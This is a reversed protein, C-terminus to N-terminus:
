AAADAVRLPLGGNVASLEDFDCRAVALVRVDTAAQVRATRIGDASFLSREGVVAGAGLRRHGDRAEVLVSGELVVFLGAGPQGSEILLQGAPVACEAGVTRLLRIDDSSMSRTDRSGTVQADDV